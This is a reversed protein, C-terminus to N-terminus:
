SIEELGLVHAASSVHLLYHRSIPVPYNYFPEQYSNLVSMDVLAREQKMLREDYRDHSFAAGLAIRGETDAQATLPFAAVRVPETFARKLQDNLRDPGRLASLVAWLERSAQTGQSLVLDLDDLAKRTEPLM